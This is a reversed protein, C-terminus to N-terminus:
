NQRQGGPVSRDFLTDTKQHEIIRQEEPIDM